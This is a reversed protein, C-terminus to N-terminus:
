RRSRRRMRVPQRVEIRAMKRQERQAQIHTLVAMTLVLTCGMMLVGLLFLLSM